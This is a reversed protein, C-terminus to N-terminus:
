AVGEQVDRKALWDNARQTAIAYYDMKINELFEDYRLLAEEKFKRYILHYGDDEEQSDDPMFDFIIDRCVKNRGSSWVERAIREAFFKQKQKPLHLMTHCSKCVVCLERDEYEWPERGQFYQRHHVHLEEETDQCVYCQWNAKTLMELRRKQWKPDKLKQAYDNQQKTM